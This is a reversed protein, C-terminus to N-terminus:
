RRYTCNVPYFVFIYKNNNDNGFKITRGHGGNDASGLRRYRGTYVTDSTRINIRIITNYM